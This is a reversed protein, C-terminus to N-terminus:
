GQLYGESHSSVYLAEVKACRVHTTFM